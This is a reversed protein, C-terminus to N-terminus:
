AAGGRYFADVRALSVEALEHAAAETFPGGVLPELGDNLDLVVYYGDAELRV